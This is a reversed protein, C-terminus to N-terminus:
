RDPNAADLQEELEKVRATLRDVEDYLWNKIVDDPLSELYRQQLDARLGRSGSGQAQPAASKPADGALYGESILHKKFTDLAVTTEHNNKIKNFFTSYPPQGEDLWRQKLRVLEADREAKKDKIPEKESM